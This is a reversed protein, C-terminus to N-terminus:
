SLGVWPLPFKVTFILPANIASTIAGAIGITAGAGPFKHIGGANGITSGFMGCTGPICIKLWSGFDGVLHKWRINILMNTALLERLLWWWMM